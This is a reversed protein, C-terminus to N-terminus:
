FFDIINCFYLSIGNELTIKKTLPDLKTIFGEIREFKYNKFYKIDIKTGAQYSSIIYEEIENIKDETLIPKNIKNQERILENIVSGGNIVSNFPAWKIANRDPM